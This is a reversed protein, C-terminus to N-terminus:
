RTHFVVVNHNKVISFNNEYGTALHKFHTAEFRFEYVNVVESLVIIAKFVGGGWMCVSFHLLLLHLCIEVVCVCM